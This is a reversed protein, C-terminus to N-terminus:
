LIMKQLYMDFDVEFPTTLNIFVTNKHYSVIYYTNFVTTHKKKNDIKYIAKFIQPGSSSTYNARIKTFEMDSQEAIKEQNMKIIGLLYQADSKYIPQFPMANVTYTSRTEEDLFIYLSGEMNIRAKLQQVEYEYDQKSAISDVLQLYEVSSYRKFVEPLYIKVGEDELFHFKGKVDGVKEAEIWNKVDVVNHLCAQLMITVLSLLAILYANKRSM